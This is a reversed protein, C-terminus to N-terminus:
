RGISGNTKAGYVTSNASPGRVTGAITAVILVAVGAGTLTLAGLTVAVVGNNALAGTATSTLAGLTIAADGALDLAGTAESTLSGLTVSLEGTPGSTSIGTAAITLSGLAVDATGVIALTGTADSTLGDLTLAADGAIALTGAAAVTLAGLTATVEGSAGSVLEGTAVVALGGLTVSATGVIALAGAATSTLAGLTTAATGVIALTATSAVTMQGLTMAAVGTIVVAGTAAGTLAGLTAAAVGTIAVTGTAVSTLAGLTVAATGVIAVTGTATSTLAGLTVSLVGEYGALELFAVFDEGAWPATMTRVAGGSVTTGTNTTGSSTRLFEVNFTGSYSTLNVTFNGSANQYALIKVTGTTQAIAYGTSSLSGQPTAISLDLRAAYDLIYGLNARIRECDANARTDTSYLAGDWEDMYLPSCGRTFALWTWEHEQTLGVAHDTDWLIVKDGNSATVSTVVSGDKPSIWEANSSFLDTDSGAPYQVTMGVPHQKAKGAEYTHIYDILAHQWAVKTQGSANDVEDEENSIEYIVHDLDNVADIVARVYAKQLDFVATWTIDRTEGVQGDNDIDGDISNVNNAANFPHYTGPAGETYGKQTIQWGQFLQVCVYMGRNGAEIARERLREMYVPNFLTLDVKLLGDAANGPGTRQYINPYFRLPADCWDRLSEMAWLKVFNAGKAVVADLYATYDFATPPYSTGHDVLTTWTHFGALVKIAGSVSFYRPNTADVELLGGVTASELHYGKAAVTLAGLTKATTGAIALTGTAASILSGLTVSLTGDINASSITGTAVVTLAGLTKALTGVLAVTGTATSTLSGLTKTLVGALAITGTATSTLVGLTKSLTGEIPTSGGIDPGAESYTITGIPTLNRASGSDDDDDTQLPWDGWESAKAAVTAAMETNIEANTLASTWLRAFALRMNCWEGYSNVGLEYKPTTDTRGTVSQTNTIDATASGNVYLKLSTASDRVVAVHYWTGTSPTSGNVDSHSVNACYIAWTGGSSLYLQEGQSGGGHRIYINEYGAGSKSVVYVWGMWTYASNYNWLGTTLSLGDASSDFRAATTAM